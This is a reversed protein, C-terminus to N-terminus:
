DLIQCKEYCVRDRLIGHLDGWHLVLTQLPKGHGPQRQGPHDHRLRLDYGVPQQPDRRRWGEPTCRWHDFAGRRECKNKITYTRTAVGLEKQGHFSTDKDGKVQKHLTLKQGAVVQKSDFARIWIYNNIDTYDPEGSSPNGKLRGHVGDEHIRATDDVGAATAIDDGTPKKNGFVYGNSNDGSIAFPYGNPNNTTKPTNTVSSSLYVDNQVKVPTSVQDYLLASPSVMGYFSIEVSSNPLLEGTLSFLVCTEADTYSNEGDSVTDQVQEGEMPKWSIEFTEGARSGTGVTPKYDEAGPNYFTVGTPLIDLVLPNKFPVPSSAKNTVTLTFKVPGGTLVNTANITKAIGVLPIELVGVSVIAKADDTETVDQAGTGKADWKPYTLETEATNKFKSIHAAPVTTIKKVTMYVETPNDKDPTFQEGLKYVNATKSMLAPSYYEVTFTKTGAPATFTRDELTATELNEVTEVGLQTGDATMFTVDAWIPAGAMGLAKPIVHSAKGVVVKTIEYDPVAVPLPENPDALDAETLAALGTEKLFFSKLMQNKGSVKPELTYVVDRSGTVLSDVQGGVVDSASNKDHEVVTKDLEVDAVSNINTLTFTPASATDAIPDIVLYWHVRPDDKVMTDYSDDDTGLVKTEVLVYHKTHDWRNAVVDTEWAIETGLVNGEVDEYTTSVDKHGAAATSGQFAVRPVANGDEDAPNTNTLAAFEEMRAKLEAADTPLTYGDPLEIVKFEMAAHVNEPYQGVDLKRIMPKIYPINYADFKITEAGTAKFEYCDPITTNEDIKIDKLELATSGSYLGGRGNFASSFKTEAIFYTEGPTLLYDGDFLAVGNKISLTKIKEWSTSGNEAVKQHYLTFEAQGDEAKAIGETGYLNNYKTIELPIGQFNILCNAPKDDSGDSLQDFPLLLNLVNGRDDPKDKDWGLQFEFYDQKPNIVFNPPPAVEHVRYTTKTDSDLPFVASYTGTGSGDAKLLEPADCLKEWKGDVLHQIEITAGSLAESKTGDMKYFTVKGYHFEDTVYLLVTGTGVPIKFPYRSGSSIDVPTETTTGNVTNRLVISALPVHPDNAVPKTVVEEIYYTKNRSFYVVTSNTGPKIFNGTTGNTRTLTAIPSGGTANEYVNFTVSWKGNVDASTLQGWSVYKQGRMTTMPPNFATFKVQGGDTGSFSTTIKETKVSGDQNPEVTTNPITVENPDVTVTKNLGGTVVVTYLVLKGNTDRLREYTVGGAASATSEYFAYVGPELNNLISLDEKTAGNSTSANGKNIWGANLANFNATTAATTEGAAPLTVKGDAPVKSMPLYYIQFTANAIANTGDTNNADLARKLIQIKSLKPNWGEVTFIPAGNADTKYGAGASPSITRIVVDGDEVEYTYGLYMSSNVLAALAPYQAAFLTVFYDKSYGTPAKTESLKYSGSPINTFSYVGNNDAATLDPNATTQSNDLTFTAGTLPKTETLSKKTLELSILRPNAMYITEGFDAVTFYRYRDDSGNYAREYEKNATWSSTEMEVIRYDGNPLGNPFLFEGQEKTTFTKTGPKDQDYDWDEWKKDKTNWHQLKMTIGNLPLAGYNGLAIEQASKGLTGNEGSTPVYGVKRVEVSVNKMPYNMIRLQATSKGDGFHENSGNADESVYWRRETQNKALDYGADAKELVYYLDNYYRYQVAGNHRGPDKDVFILYTRYRMPTFGYGEPARIEVLDVPVGYVDYTHTTGADDVYSYNPITLLSSSVEYSKAAGGQVEYELLFVKGTEEEAMVPKGDGDFIPNGEEDVAQVDTKRTEWKLQFVGSQALALNADGELGSILDAIETETGGLYLKFHANPLPENTKAHTAENIFERWKALRFTALFIESGGPGGTNKSNLVDADNVSDMVFKTTHEIPSGEAKVSVGNKGVWCTYKFHPNIVVGTPGVSEEVLVYIYNENVNNDILTLFEGSQRATGDYLTGSSYTGLYDWANQEAAADYSFDVSVPTAENGKLIYRYLDDLTTDNEDVALSHGNKDVTHPTGEQEEEDYKAKNQKISQDDLWKTVHFQVWHNANFMEGLTYNVGDTTYANDTVSGKVVIKDVPLTLYNYGDLSTLDSAPALNVFNSTEPDGDDKYPFYNDDGTENEVLAYEYAVVTGNELQEARILKGFEIKGSSDTTIQDRYEWKGAGYPVWAGQENQVMARRYLGVKVGSMKFAFGGHSYQWGDFKLKDGTVKIYTANDVYLTGGEGSEVFETTVTQGPVLQVKQGDSVFYYSDKLSGSWTSADGEKVTYTIKKGDAGYVPATLTATGDNGTAVANGVKTNGNWLEVTFGSMQVPKGDIRKQVKVSGNSPINYFDFTTKSESFQVEVFTLKTDGGVYTYTNSDMDLANYLAAGAESNPDIFNAPVKTEALYYTGNPLTVGSLANTTTIKVDQGNKQYPVYNGSEDKVYVTFEAGSVTPYTSGEKVSKFKNIRIQPDTKNTVTYTKYATDSGTLDPQHVKTLDIKGLNTTVATNGNTEDSTLKSFRYGPQIVTEKYYYVQGPKLYVVAGSNGAPMTVNNLSVPQPDDGATKSIADTAITNTTDDTYASYVTVACSGLDYAGSTENYKVIHVPIVDRINKLTTIYSVKTSTLAVKSYYVTNDGDKLGVITADQNNERIQVFDGTTSEERLYYTYANGAADTAPLGTWSENAHGVNLSDGVKELDAVKPDAKTTRYLGITVKAGFDDGLYAPAGSANVSYFNKNVTITVARRNYLRFTYTDGKNIRVGDTAFTKDGPNYTEGETPTPDVPYYISGNAITEVFRYEIRKDTGAIAADEALVDAKIYGFNNLSTAIANGESDKATHWQGDTGKYQLEFTADSFTGTVREFSSLAQGVGTYKEMVIHALNDQNHFEANYLLTKGDGEGITFTKVTPDLSYGRPAEIEKLTYTDYPLRDYSANGNADTVVYDQEVGDVKVKVINGASDKLQFKAGALEGSGQDYKKIVAKGLTEKNTFTITWDEKAEPAFSTSGSSGSAGSSQNTTNNKAAVKVPVMYKSYASDITESVTYSGPLVYYTTGPQMNGTFVEYSGDTKKIYITAATNGNKLSYTITGYRGDYDAQGDGYQDLKKVLNFSAPDKNTLQASVLVEDRDSQNPLKPLQAALNVTNDTDLTIITTDYFEGQYSSVDYEATVTYTTYVPTEVDAKTDGDSDISKVKNLMVNKDAGQGWVVISGTFPKPEPTTGDANISDRKITLTPTGLAEHNSLEASLLDGLSLTTVADRGPRNYQGDDAVLYMPNSSGDELYQAAGSRLGVKVTWTYTAKGNSVVPADKRIKQVGWVDPSSTSFNDATDSDSASYTKVIYNDSGEIQTKDLLDFSAKLNIFKSLDYTNISNDTGNAGVFIKLEFANSTPDLYSQDSIPIVYKTYNKGGIVVPTAIPAFKPTNGHDLLYLGEPLTVSLEVDHFQDYLDMTSQYPKGAYSMAGALGFEVNYFITQGAQINEAEHEFTNDTCPGDVVAVHVPNKYDSSGPDSYYKDAWDILPWPLNYSNSFNVNATSHIVTGDTPSITYRPKSADQGILGDSNEKIRYFPGAPLQWTNTWTEESADGTVTFSGTVTEWTEGDDSREVTFSVSSPRHKISESNYNDGSWHVNVTVSTTDTGNAGLPADGGVLSCSTLDFFVEGDKADVKLTESEQKETIAANLASEDLGGNGDTVDIKVHTVNLNEAEVDSVSVTISDGYEELDYKQGGSLITVDYAFVVQRESTDMGTQAVLIETMTELPVTVVSLDADAPLLGSVTVTRGDTTPKTLTKYEREPKVEPVVEDPNEPLIGFCLISHDYRSIERLSVADNFNGEITHIVGNILDVSQIIGVHDAWGDRVESDDYFILDGPKPSYSGDNAGLLGLQGLTEVWNGCSAEYPMAEAPIQAYNMCFSIFMACWDGYPIGYWAGYRTYGNRHESENIVFNARSEPYGLQSQAVALLDQAWNGSLEFNEFMANWVAADEVDASPDGAVLWLDDDFALDFAGGDAILKLIDCVKCRVLDGNSGDTWDHGKAELVEVEQEGCVKCVREREGKEECTPELTVVWEDWDHGLAPIIESETVGCASCTHERSGDKTCDADTLVTWEGWSHGLAPLVEDETEGCTLCKHTRSGDNTCDADALVTWEGWNHGLAPLAENEPVGCFQCSHTAEGGETCTPQTLVTWEGWDHGRAPFVESVTEGCVVCSHMAEGSETCTPQAIVTWEGWSHGLAAYTQYDEAGCVSCFRVCVGGETCSPELLFTWDGWDHEIHVDSPDEVDTAFAQTPIMGFMFILVLLAAVTRKGLQKM